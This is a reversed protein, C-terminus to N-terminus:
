IPLPFGAGGHSSKPSCSSTEESFHFDNSIANAGGGQVEAIRPVVTRARLWRVGVLDYIGVIARRLNTYKSQGAIRPRDNVPLYAVHHGYSLFLAPLYRHMGSFSPLALFAERDFVKIGCGTDPCQDALVADRLWNAFRSALQKSREARRTTRIGGVLSPGPLVRVAHGVLAAIDAPDNQGDGDLTAILGYRAARVGTHIAASQGCRTALRIYRLRPFGGILAKAEAATGDDSADDVVIVEGVLEEPVVAFIERVLREPNGAENYAPLVISIRTEGQRRHAHTPTTAAANM